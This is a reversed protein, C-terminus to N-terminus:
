GSGICTVCHSNYHAGLDELKAVLADRAPLPEGPQPSMLTFVINRTYVYGAAQVTNPPTFLNNCIHYTLNPINLGDM